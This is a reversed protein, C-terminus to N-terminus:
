KTGALFKAKFAARDIEAGRLYVKNIRHTNTINELPNADLVVFDAEKGASVTGM